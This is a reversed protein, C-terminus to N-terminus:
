VFIKQFCLHHYPLFQLPKSMYDFTPDQMGCFAITPPPTNGAQFFFNEPPPSSSNDVSYGNPLLLGGWLDLVGKITFNIGGTSATGDGGYYYNQNIGGLVNNSSIGPPFASTLMSPLNYYAVNMAIVSGASNGAVFIKSTDIHFETEKQNVATTIEHKIISRIVGRADQCPRWIGLMQQVTYYVEGPIVKVGTRYEASIAIFGRRAFETCINQIDSTNFTGHCDAFSGGHFYIVVPLKCTSFNTISYKSPYFAQYQLLSGDPSCDAVSNPCGYAGTDNADYAVDHYNAPMASPPVTSCGLGYCRTENKISDLEFFQPIPSRLDLTCTAPTICTPKGDGQSYCVSYTCVLFSFISLWKM